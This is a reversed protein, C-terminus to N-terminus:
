ETTRRLSDIREVLENARHKLSYVTAKLEDKSAPVLEVIAGQPCIGLCFRCSNCKVQDILAQGSKVSIAGRPCSEVCLGCGACLDKKVRFM